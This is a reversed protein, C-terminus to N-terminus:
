AMFVFAFHLTLLDNRELKWQAIVPAFLYTVIGHRSIFALSCNQMRERRTSVAGLLFAVFISREPAALLPHLYSAVATVDKFDRATFVHVSLHTTALHGEGKWALVGALAQTM